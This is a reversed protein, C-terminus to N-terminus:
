PLSEMIQQYRTEKSNRQSLYILEKKAQDFRGLEIFLRIINERALIYDPNAKIANWFLSEAKGYKKQQLFIFGLANLSQFHFPNLEIVKEFTEGAAEQGLELKLNALRYWFEVRDPAMKCAKELTTLASPFKARHKLQSWYFITMPNKSKLLQTTDLKGNWEAKSLYFYKVQEEDRLQHVFRSIEDSFATDGHTEAYLLKASWLDREDLQDGAFNRLILKGSTAGKEVELKRRILHDTSSVHPIDTTGSVVMHCSKCNASASSNVACMKEHGMSHCSKCSNNYFDDGGKAQSHPNHCTTCNMRGRSQQFCVSQQLREAHSAFGFGATKDKTPIFVEDFDALQKGPEYQGAAAKHKRVKIGELHCQRCVDFQAQLPLSKLSVPPLVKAGKSDTASKLHTELSGHCSGCDLAHGFHEYRNLSHVRFKYGSNHCQMCAEGIEREFRSNQGNEYGPSLDWVKKKTYWTVPIEFLYQNRQFLFSRTQNGSGIFFDIKEIRQHITDSGQLRFEKVFFGEPRRFPLYYLDLHQDFVPKTEWDEVAWKEEAPFFSRGKGTQLYNEVIEAHCPNCSKPDIFSSGVVSVEDMEQGVNKEKDESECAFFLGAAYLFILIFSIGPREM